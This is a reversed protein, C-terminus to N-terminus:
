VVDDLVGAVVGVDGAAVVRVSQAGQLHGLLDDPRDVRDGLARTLSKEAADDLAGGPVSEAAQDCQQVVLAVEVLGEVQGSGVRVPRAAEPLAAVQWGPADQELGLGSVHVADEGSNPTSGFRTAGTSTMVTM